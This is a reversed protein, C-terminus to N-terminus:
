NQYGYHPNTFEVPDVEASIWDRGEIGILITICIFTFYVAWSTPIDYYEM